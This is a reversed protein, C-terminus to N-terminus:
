GDCDCREMNSRCDNVLFDISVGFLCSDREREGWLSCTECSLLYGVELLSFGVFALMFSRVADGNIQHICSVPLKPDAYHINTNQKHNIWRM